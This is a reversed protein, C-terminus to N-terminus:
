KIKIAEKIIAIQTANTEARKELDLIKNDIKSIREDRITFDRLADAGKYRDTTQLNMQSQIALLQEKLHSFETNISSAWWTAALTQALLFIIIGFLEYRITFGTNTKLAMDFSRRDEGRYIEEGNELIVIEKKKDKQTM